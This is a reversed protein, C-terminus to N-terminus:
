LTYVSEGDMARAASFRHIWETKTPSAKHSAAYQSAAYRRNLVLRTSIQAIITTEVLENSELTAGTSVLDVIRNCLGLTPALEMAGNLKICDAYVGRAAFHRGATRPYKTAIRIYKRHMIEDDASTIDKRAAVSLRCLGIRLDLPASIASMDVPPTELLTDLGAMGFHAGGRAVFTPVDSSRVRILRILPDNTDFALRRDKPDHFAAEPEIGAKALLPLLEKLIRGKPVAIVIPESM